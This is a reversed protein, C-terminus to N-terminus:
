VVVGKIKSKLGPMQAASLSLNSGASFGGLVVRSKDVPLSEDQIVAQTIAVVDNTPGPFRNLPALDYEISVVLLNFM